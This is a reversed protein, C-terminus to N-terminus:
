RRGPDVPPHPERERSRAVGARDQVGEHSRRRPPQNGKRSNPRLHTQPLTKLNRQPPDALRRRQNRSEVHNEPVPLPGHRRPLLSTQRFLVGRQLGHGPVLLAIGEPGDSRVEGTNPHFVDVGKVEVQLHGDPLERLDIDPEGFVVFLNGKGTSRLDDAMHLDANM